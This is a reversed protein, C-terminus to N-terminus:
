GMPNLRHLSFLGRPLCAHSVSCCRSAQSECNFSVMHASLHSLIIGQGSSHQLIGQTFCNIGADCCHHDCRRRCHHGNAPPGHSSSRPPPPSPLCVGNVRGRRRSRCRVFAAVLRLGAACALAATALACAHSTPASQPKCLSTSICEALLSGTKHNAPLFRSSTNTALRPNSHKTEFKEVDEGTWRLPARRTARTLEGPVVVCSSAATSSLNLSPSRADDTEVVDAPAASAALLLAIAATLM